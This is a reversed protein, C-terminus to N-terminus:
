TNCQTAKGKAAASSMAMWKQRTRFSPPILPANYRRYDYPADLTSARVCWNSETGVSFPADARTRKVCGVSIM